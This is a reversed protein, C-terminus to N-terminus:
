GAGLGRGWDAKEARLVVVPLEVAGINLSFAMEFSVYGILAVKFAVFGPGTGHAVAAAPRGVSEPPKVDPRM